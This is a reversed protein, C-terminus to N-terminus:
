DALMYEPVITVTTMDRADAVIAEIINRGRVLEVNEFVFVGNKGDSFGISFGNVKLEVNDSNSYVTITQTSESRHDNRRETIYVFPTKTNWNAKYFYYADKPYKRDFTVLGMDDIGNDQGRSRGTAGFDFMYNVFWGWVVKSPSSIYPYMTEHFHKQWNEPHWSGDHKPQHLSSAQHYISGGAGYSSASLLKGSWQKGFRELWVSIDDVSGTVWGYGHSWSVVDTIFNIDGDQNSSCATLRYPDEKKALAELEKIYPIPSDGSITMDSFIGWMVISCYNYNQRIIESLMEKGNNKFDTTNVFGRDTMYAPGVFPIDSWVLLGRRDCEQYFYQSQPMGCVKVFTAGMDCIIDLDERIQYNTVAVGVEARDSQMAVGKVPYPEGNLMFGNIADVSFSRLGVMLELSDKVQADEYLKFRMTYRYPDEVGQWLRPSLIELPMTAQSTTNDLKLKQTAQAVTDGAEGIVFASVSLNGRSSSKVNIEADVQAKEKTIDKQKIYVGDSAMDTVMFHTPEAIILEVDRYLGGYVTALGATPMVDLSQSNNVTVWLYSPLGYKVYNTIDFVFATSGGVHQGVYRNDVFLTAKTGAGYFKLYIKKGRLSDPLTIKRMYNGIGRFYDKKGMLADSNWTHPLKVLVAADSTTEINSFFQWDRNLNVIEISHAVSCLMMFVLGFLIKKM